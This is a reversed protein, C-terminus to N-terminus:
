GGGLLLVCGLRLLSCREDIRGSWTPSSVQEEFERADVWLPFAPNIHVTERDALLLRADLYQRLNKLATRLSGRAQADPSDGWLLAALKERTHGSPAPHVVLYALLSQVKRSPLLLAGKDCEVRFPGLLYLELPTPPATHPM